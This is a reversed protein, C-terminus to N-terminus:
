IRKWIIKCEARRLKQITFIEDKLYNNQKQFIFSHIVLVSFYKLVIFNLFEFYIFYVIKIFRNCARLKNNQLCQCKVVGYLM